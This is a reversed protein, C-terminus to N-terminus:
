AGAVFSVLAFAMAIKFLKSSRAADNRVLIEFAAIV